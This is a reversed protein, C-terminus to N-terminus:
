PRFPPLGLRRAWDGAGRLRVRRGAGAPEIRVVLTDAPLLGAIREGWEILAAGCDFADELGLEWVDEPRELRYLDFHWVEFGGPAPYSHALGFTPSPADPTGTAAQLAARALHSKGAGLPGSLAVVDGPKLRAGLAAGLRSTAAEDPLDFVQDFVPDPSVAAM